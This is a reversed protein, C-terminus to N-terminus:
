IRFIINSSTVKGQVARAQCWPLHTRADAAFPLAWVATAEHVAPFTRPQAYRPQAPGREIPSVSVIGAILHKPMTFFINGDILFLFYLLCKNGEIGPVLM